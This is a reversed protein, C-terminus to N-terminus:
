ISLTVSGYARRRRCASIAARAASSSARWGRGSIIEYQRIKHLDQISLQILAQIYYPAKRQLRAGRRGRLERPPQRRRAPPPALQAARQAPLRHVVEVQVTRRRAPVLHKLPNPRMTTESISAGFRETFETGLIAIM